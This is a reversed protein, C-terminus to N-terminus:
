LPLPDFIFTKIANSIGDLVIKEIVNISPRFLFRSKKLRSFMEFMYDSLIPGKIHCSKRQAVKTHCNQRRVHGDAQLLFM